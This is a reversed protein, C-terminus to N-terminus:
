PSDSFQRVLRLAERYSIKTGRGLSGFADRLITIETGRPKFSEWISEEALLDRLAKPLSSDKKATAKLEKQDSIARYDINRPGKGKATRKPAKPKSDPKILDKFEDPMKSQVHMLVAKGEPIGIDKSIRLWLILSPHVYGKEFKFIAPGSVGYKSGFEDQTMKLKSRHGQILESLSKSM